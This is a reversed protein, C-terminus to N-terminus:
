RNVAKRRRPPKDAQRMRPDVRKGDSQTDPVKSLATGTAPEFFLGDLDIFEDSCWRLQPARGSSFAAVYTEKDHRMVEDLLPLYDSDGSLLCLLDIRHHHAGRLMDITIRIDVQRTKHSKALKKFVFPVIEASGTPTHQTKSFPAYAYEYEYTITGIHRKMDEIALDDGVISTYYNVRVVNM